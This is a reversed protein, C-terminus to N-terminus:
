KQCPWADRLAEVALSQFNEHMRAPRADIYQVVVQVAQGTTAEPPRCFGLFVRGFTLLTGISGACVGDLFDNGKTYFVFHRCGPMYYNASNVDEAVAPALMSAAIIAATITRAIGRRKMM